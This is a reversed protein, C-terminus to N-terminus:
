QWIAAYKGNEANVQVPALGKGKLEDFRRQYGAASMDVYHAWSKVGDKRWVATYTGDPAVAVKVPRFGKEKKAYVEAEHQKLSKGYTYYWAGGSNASWVGVYRVDDPTGYADVSTLALGKATAQKNATAFASPTLGSRALFAGSKKEFVATFVASDAPGTASVSVPQAGEKLGADFRKQFGGASMGQWIGWENSSGGKVWVAAYREGDSVNVTIPRYGQEKLQKVRAVSQSASLNHYAVWAGQAAQATATMPVAAGALVTTIIAIKGATRM